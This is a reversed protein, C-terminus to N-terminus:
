SDFFSKIRTLIHDCYVAPLVPATLKDVKCQKHFVPLLYYYIYLLLYLIMRNTRSKLGPGVSIPNSDWSSDYSSWGLPEFTNQIKMRNVTQRCPSRRHRYESMNQGPHEVATNSIQMRAGSTWLRGAVTHGDYIISVVIHTDLQM